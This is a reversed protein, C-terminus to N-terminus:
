PRSHKRKVAHQPRARALALRVPQNRRGGVRADVVVPAPGAPAQAVVASQGQRPGVGASGVPGIGGPARGAGLSLARSRTQM